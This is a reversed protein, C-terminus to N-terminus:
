DVAVICLAVHSQAVENECEWEVAWVHKLELGRTAPSKIAEHRRKVRVLKL